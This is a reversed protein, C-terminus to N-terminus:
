YPKVEAHTPSSKGTINHGREKLGKLLHVPYVNDADIEEPYLEHHVRGHEIATRLDMGWDLNLMVQIVAPFIRSGGAGGIVLELAGESDEVIM